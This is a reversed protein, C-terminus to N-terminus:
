GFFQTWRKTATSFFLCFWALSQFFSSNIVQFLFPFNWLDKGFCHRGLLVVPSAKLWPFLRIWSPAYASSFEACFQLIPQCLGLKLQSLDCPDSFTLMVKGDEVQIPAKSGVSSLSVYWISTNIECTYVNTLVREFPSGGHDLSQSSALWRLPCLNSGQDSLIGCAVPCSFRPVVVVSGSRQLRWAVVVLCVPGLAREGFCSLGCRYAAWAGSSFLLGQESCSSFPLTCCHLGLAIM